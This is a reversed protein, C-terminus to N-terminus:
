RFTRQFPVNELAPEPRVAALKAKKQIGSTYLHEIKETDRQAMSFTILVLVFLVVVINRELLARKM